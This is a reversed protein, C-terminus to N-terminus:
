SFCGFLVWKGQLSQEFDDFRDLTKVHTLQNNLTLDYQDNEKWSRLPFILIILYIFYFFVCVCVVLIHVNKFTHLPSLMQVYVCM